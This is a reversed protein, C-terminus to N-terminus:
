SGAPAVAQTLPPGLSARRIPYIPSAELWSLLGTLAAESLALEVKRRDAPRGRHRVLGQCRVVVLGPGLRLHEAPVARRSKLVALQSRDFVAHPRLRLSMSRHWYLQGRRYEALGHRWPADASHRLGCEVVGGRRSIIVRRLVLWASLVALLGTVTLGVALALQGAV